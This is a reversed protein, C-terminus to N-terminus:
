KRVSVEIADFGFDFLKSKYKGSKRVYEIYDAMQKAFKGVNDAVVVADRTMKSEATKLYKLYDEKKADIFVFDFSGKLTPIIKLADGTIINIRDSFGAKKINSRAIEATKEDIEISVIKGRFHQAMMISSYGILAGIELVSKPQKDKIANELVSGKERGIIPLYDRNIELSVASPLDAIKEIDRLMQVSKDM